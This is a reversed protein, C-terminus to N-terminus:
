QAVSDGTRPRRSHSAMQAPAGPDNMLIPTNIRRVAPMSSSGSTNVGPRAAGLRLGLDVAIRLIGRLEDVPGVAHDPMPEPDVAARRQGLLPGAIKIELWVQPM